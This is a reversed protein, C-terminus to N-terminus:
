YRLEGEGQEKGNKFYGKYVDGNKHQKQGWGHPKDRIIEGQYTYNKKEIRGEKNMQNKEFHGVVVKQEDKLEGDGKFKGNDFSGKYMKGKPDYYIGQHNMLYGNWFGMYRHGKAGSFMGYHQNGQVWQGSFENGDSSKFHGYGHRLDKEWDGEYIICEIGSYDYYKMVGTGHRLGKLFDGEYIDGTSLKLIGFGEKKSERFDGVYVSGCAYVQEEDKIFIRRFLNLSSKSETNM